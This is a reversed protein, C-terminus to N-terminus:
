LRLLLERGAHGSPHRGATWAVLRLGLDAYQRPFRLEFPAPDLDGRSHNYSSPDDEFLGLRRGDQWIELGLWRTRVFDSPHAREHAQAILGSIGQVAQVRGWVAGIAAAVGLLATIIKKPFSMTAFRHTSRGGATRAQPSPSGDNGAPQQGVPSGADHTQEDV